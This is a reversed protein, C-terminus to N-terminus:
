EAEAFNGGSCVEPQINDTEYTCDLCSAIKFFPKKVVHRLISGHQLFIFLLSAWMAETGGKRWRSIHNEEGPPISGSSETILQNSWVVIPRSVLRQTQGHTLETHLFLMGHRGADRFCGLLGQSLVTVFDRAAGRPSFLAKKYCKEKVCVM